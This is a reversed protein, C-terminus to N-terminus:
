KNLIEINNEGFVLKMVQDKKEKTLRFQLLVEEPERGSDSERPVLVEPWTILDIERMRLGTAIKSLYDTTLHQQGSLIKSLAKESIDADQALAAQKMDRINMIKRINEVVDKQFQTREMEM